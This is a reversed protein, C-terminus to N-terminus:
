EMINDKQSGQFESDVGFSRLNTSTLFSVYLKFIM